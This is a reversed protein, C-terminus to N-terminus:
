FRRTVGYILPLQAAARGYLRDDAMEFRLMAHPVVVQPMALAIGSIGDEGCDAVVETAQDPPETEQQALDESLEGGSKM